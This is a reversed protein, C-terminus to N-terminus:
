KRLKALLRLIEIYLWVLTVLLGLAALWEMWKPQRNAAGQEIIHFDIVLNFAALGACFISFGIGVMGNGGLAASIGGGIGFLGFVMLALMSLALGVTAGVVVKIFLPTARIVGSAYLALMGGLTLITVGAASVAIGNYKLDLIYSFIGLFLGQALAYIISCPMAAKPVFWTVLLALLGVIVGIISAVMPQLGFVLQTTSVQQWAITFVILLLLTLLGTKAATGNVTMTTSANLSSDAWSPENWAESTLIPNSM